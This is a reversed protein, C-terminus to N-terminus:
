KDRDSVISLPMGHDAIITKMFSYALAETNSSELYPVFKAYKTFRDVIVIISDFTTNTLPDKLGPLKVIWDMSIHEFPAEPVLHEGMEGYPRHRNPKNIICEICTDIHERIRQKIKPFYYHNKIRDHTKKFGQHGSGPANHQQRIIRNVQRAPVYVKGFYRLYGDASTHIQHETESRTTLEAYMTDTKYADILEQDVEQAVRYVQMVQPNAYVLSGDTDQKLLQYSQQTTDPKYDIRRSLADARANESGKRYIIRFKIYSLKEAWRMHRRTLEKTTLFTQLNKHDTYIQIEHPNSNAYVAWVKLADVIALLEKDYVDYNIEAAIFKRSHFMVPHPKGNQDLQNLVAGLAYDSADTEIIIPLEPDYM